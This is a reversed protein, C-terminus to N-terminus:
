CCSVDYHSNAWQFIHFFRGGFVGLPAGAEVWADTDSLQLVDLKARILAKVSEIAPNLIEDLAERSTNASVDLDLPLADREFAVKSNEDEVVMKKASGWCCDRMWRLKDQWMARSEGVGTAEILIRM